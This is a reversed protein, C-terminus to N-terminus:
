LLSQRKVMRRLHVVSAGAKRAEYRLRRETMHEDLFAAAKRCAEREIGESENSALWMIAIDLDADTPLRLGRVSM